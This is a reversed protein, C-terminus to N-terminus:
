RWNGIILFPAWYYPHRLRPSSNMVQLQAERLAEAKTMSHASQSSQRLNKYFDGILATTAADNVEWLTALVSRAGAKVAVGALGLSARDTAGQATHCASLSLLEVPQGRFKSPEILRELRIMDLKGNFTLLYTDHADESFTGHTAIHVISYEEKDFRSNLNKLTFTKDLLKDQSKVNYLKQIYDLEHPVEKLAPEGNVSESLGNAMVAVQGRPIEMPPMLQLGPSLSVSYKEILFKGDPCILAGM